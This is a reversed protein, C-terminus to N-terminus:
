KNSKLKTLDENDDAVLSTNNNNNNNNNKNIPIVIIPNMINVIHIM